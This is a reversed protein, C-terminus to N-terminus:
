GWVWELKPCLTRAVLSGMLILILGAFLATTGHLAGLIMVSPVTIYDIAYLVLGLGAMWLPLVLLWFLNKEEAEQRKRKDGVM